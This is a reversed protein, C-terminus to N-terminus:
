LLEDSDEKYDRFVSKEKTWELKEEEEEVSLLLRPKCHMKSIGTSTLM